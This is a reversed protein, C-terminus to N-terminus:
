YSYRGIFYVFLVIDAEVNYHLPLISYCFFGITLEELNYKLGTSSYIYKGEVASFGHVRDTYWTLCIACLINYCSKKHKLGKYGDSRWM